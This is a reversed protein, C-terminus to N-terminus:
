GDAPNETIHSALHRKLLARAYDWDHRVRSFPVEFLEAISRLSLGAFFRLRILEEVEPELGRIGELVHSLLIPSIEVSPDKNELHEVDVKLRTWGAGRKQSSHKRAQEVLIDRMARSVIGFFERSNTPSLDTRGSVRLYAENVLATPQLTDSDPVSRMYLSALGRLEEYTRDYVDAYACEDGSRAADLLQTLSLQNNQSDSDTIVFPESYAHPELFWGCAGLPHIETNHCFARIPPLSVSPFKWSDPIRRSSIWHYM